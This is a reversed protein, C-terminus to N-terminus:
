KSKLYWARAQKGEQNLNKEKVSERLNSYINMIGLKGFLHHFQTLDLTKTFLDALQQNTPM